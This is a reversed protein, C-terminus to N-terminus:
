LRSIIESIKKFPAEADGRTIFLIFEFVGPIPDERKFNSKSERVKEVKTLLDERDSAKMLTQVSIILLYLLMSERKKLVYSLNSMKKKIELFLLSLAQTQSTHCDILHLLCIRRYKRVFTQVPYEELLKEFSEIVLRNGDRILASIALCGLPKDVIWKINNSVLQALKEKRVPNAEELISVLMKRTQQYAPDPLNVKLYQTIFDLPCEPGLKKLIKTLLSIAQPVYYFADHRTQFVLALEQCFQLSTAILFKFVKRASAKSIISTSIRLTEQQCFRFFAQNSQAFQIIEKSGREETIKM